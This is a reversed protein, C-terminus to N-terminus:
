RVPVSARSANSSIAVVMEPWRPRPLDHGMDNFMLLRSGPIARCTAQGGSPQVLTDQLGHIVLAPLVLAGLGATRDPSAAIAVAQRETGAPRWSRAISLRAGVLHEDHDWLSGAFMSYFETGAAAAGERTPAKMRAFAGLVKRTPLGNRQDGTHSMVSTLSLVLKPHNIALSQAIMGGMSMGVVHAADIDLAALLGAADEAMDDITYGAKPKRRLIFSLALRLKSPPAWDFETSLGVDRNDFTIVRYREALLDVLGQPWDTLQGGLGMVLLMPEGSGQEQYEITIGNSTVAPM